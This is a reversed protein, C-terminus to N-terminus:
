FYDKRTTNAVFKLIPNDPFAALKEDTHDENRETCTTRCGKARDLKFNDGKCNSGDTQAQPKSSLAKRAVDACACCAEVGAGDGLTM